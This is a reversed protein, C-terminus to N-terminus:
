FFANMQWATPARKQVRFCPVSEVSHSHYNSSPRLNRLVEWCCDPDTDGERSDPLTKHRLWCVSYSLLSTTGVELGPSKSVSKTSFAAEM